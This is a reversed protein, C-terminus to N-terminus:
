DGGLVDITHKEVLKLAALAATANEYDQKAKDYSVKLWRIRSEASAILGANRDAMQEPSGFEVFSVRLQHHSDAILYGFFMEADSEADQRNRAWVHGLEAAFGKSVSWVGAGGARRVRYVSSNVRQWIRNTRRTLTARKRGLEPNALGEFFRERIYDEVDGRHEFGLSFLSVSEHQITPSKLLLDDIIADRDESAMMTYIM